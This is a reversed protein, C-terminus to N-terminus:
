RIEENMLHRRLANRARLLRSKAAALTIGIADAADVLRDEDRHYREV